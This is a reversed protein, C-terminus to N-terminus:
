EKIPASRLFRAAILLELPSSYDLACRANPYEKKLVSIVKKAKIKKDM